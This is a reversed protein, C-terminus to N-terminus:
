ARRAPARISALRATVVIRKAASYLPHCASLVLRDRRARQLVALDSPAVIRTSLVRYTMRAYPLEVEVPDGPRLADLSRFPAGYTTRHGAIAATGRRGPLPQGTIFGPGKRLDDVTSGRVVITSLGIRPIRLRAAAHGEATRAELRRAGRALAARSPRQRPLPPVAVQLRAFEADLTRQSAGARLASVPEQWVLTAVVDGLAVLGAVVLVVAVVRKV